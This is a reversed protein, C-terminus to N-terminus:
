FVYWSLTEGQDEFPRMFQRQDVCPPLDKLLSPSAVFKPFDSPENRFICGGVRYKVRTQPDVYFSKDTM